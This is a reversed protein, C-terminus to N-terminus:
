IRGVTDKLNNIKVGFEKEMKSIGFFEDVLEERKKQGEKGPDFLWALDESIKVQNTGIKKEM